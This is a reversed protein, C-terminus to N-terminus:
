NVIIKSLSKEGKMNTLVVYYLQKAFSSVNIINEGENILEQKVLQGQINYFQLNVKENVIVNLTSKTVTPFLNFTVQNLDEVTAPAPQYVYSITIPTGIETGSTDVEYFKLDYTVPENPNDGVNENIFHNGHTASSASPQLTIPGNTPYSTGETVGFYCLDYCLTLHDGNSNIIRDVKVLTNIPATTNLNTIIFERDATNDLTSVTIVDNNNAPNGDITLSFQAFNFLTTLLFTLTFLLQKKM